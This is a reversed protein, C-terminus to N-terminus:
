ITPSCIAIARDLRPSLGFYQSTHQSNGYIM